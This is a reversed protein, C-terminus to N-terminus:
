RNTLEGLMGISKSQDVPDKEKADSEEGKAKQAAIVHRMYAGCAPKDVHDSVGFHCYSHLSKRASRHHRPLLLSSRSMVDSCCFLDPLPTRADDVLLDQITHLISSFALGHNLDHRENDHNSDGFGCCALLYAHTMHHILSALLVLASPHRTLDTNLSIVIQNGFVGLAATSGHINAPLNSSLRVSVSTKLVERFLHKDLNQFLSQLQQLSNITPVLSLKYADSKKLKELERLALRAAEGEQLGLDPKAARSSNEIVWYDSSPLGPNPLNSYRVNMTAQPSLDFIICFDKRLHDEDNNTATLPKNFSQSLHVLHLRRVTCRLSSKGLRLLLLCLSM